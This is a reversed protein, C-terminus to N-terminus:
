NFLKSPKLTIEKIQLILCTEICSINLYLIKHQCYQRMYLYYAIIGLM